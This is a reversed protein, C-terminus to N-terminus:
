TMTPRSTRDEAKSKVQPVDLRLALEDTLNQSDSQSELMDNVLNTEQKDTTIDLTTDQPVDHARDQLTKHIQKELIKFTLFPYQERAKAKDGDWDQTSWDSPTASPQPADLQCYM